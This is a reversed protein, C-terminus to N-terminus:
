LAVQEPATQSLDLPILEAGEALCNLNLEFDGDWDADGGDGDDVLVQQDVLEGFDVDSTGENAEDAHALSFVDAGHKPPSTGGWTSVQANDSKAAKSSGSQSKITDSTAKAKEDFALSRTYADFEQKREAQTTRRRAESVAIMHSRKNRQDEASEMTFERVSDVHKHHAAFTQDIRFADRYVPNQLVNYTPLSKILCRQLAKQYTVSHGASVTPAVWLGCTLKGMVSRLSQSKFRRVRIQDFVLIAVLITVVYFLHTEYQDLLVLLVLAVLLGITVAFKLWWQQNRLQNLIMISVLAVLTYFLYVCHSQTWKQMQDKSNLEKEVIKRYENATEVTESSFVTNQSLMTIAVVLHLVVGYLLLKSAGSPIRSSYQPPIKYFYLFMAKDVWYAFLTAVCAVPVLLPIALGYIMAVYFNLLHNAYREHLYFAGGEFRKNLEDQCFIGDTKRKADIDQVASREVLSYVAESFPIQRTRQRSEDWVHVYNEGVPCRVVKGTIKEGTKDQVTRHLLPHTESDAGDLLGYESM